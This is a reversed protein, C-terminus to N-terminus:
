IRAVENTEDRELEEDVIMEDDHESMKYNEHDIFIPKEHHILISHTIKSNPYVTQPCNM